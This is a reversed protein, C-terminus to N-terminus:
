KEKAPPKRQYYPPEAHGEEDYFDDPTAPNRHEGIWEDIERDLADDAFEGM